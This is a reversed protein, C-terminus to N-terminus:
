FRFVIKAWLLIVELSNWTLFVVCNWIVSIIEYLQFLELITFGNWTIAVFGQLHFLEMYSFFNIDSVIGHCYILEMNTFCNWMLLFAM